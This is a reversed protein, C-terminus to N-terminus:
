LNKERLNQISRRILLVLNNDGAFEDYLRRLIRGEDPHGAIKRLEHQLQNSQPRPLDFTNIRQSIREILTDIQADTLPIYVIEPKPAPLYPKLDKELTITTIGSGSVDDAEQLKEAADSLLQLVEKQVDPKLGSVEGLQSLQPEIADYTEQARETDGSEIAEHLEDLTDVLLMGEVDSEDVVDVALEASAELVTKKLLYMEDSPKAASLEATNEAVEQRLLFRTVTDGGSGSAVTQLADKYEQLPVDAGSSGEAILAAAENLRTSANELQKQVKEEPDITLIMDVTEAVRKMSYLPSNPLIGAQAARREQQMQAIERQHVADRRLNQTVWDDTYETDAIRNIEGAADKGFRAKEGAVLTTETDGQVVEAHRSWARVILDGDDVAISVSGDNVTVDGYPTSVVIGRLHRPILGQVWVRGESLTLTAGGLAPEPRDSLDHMAITTNSDLRITGDDHLLVTAEGASTRLQVPENLTIEDNVAQWLGHLSVETSGKTPVVMVVSEAITRPALFLVPSVRLAVLVLAFAATWKTWRYSVQEHATLRSLIRERITQQEVADVNLASRIRGFVSSIEPSDIRNLVRGWVMGQQDASPSAEQKARELVNSNAIRQSIRARIRDQQGKEPMLDDRLRHLHSEPTM